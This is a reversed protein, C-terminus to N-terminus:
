GCICTCEESSTYLGCLPTFSLKHTPYQQMTLLPFCVAHNGPIACASTSHYICRKPALGAAEMHQVSLCGLQLQM